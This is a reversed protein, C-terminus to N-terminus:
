KISPLFAGARKLFVLRKSLNFSVDEGWLLRLVSRAISQFVERPCLVDLLLATQKYKDLLRPHQHLVLQQREGPTSVL